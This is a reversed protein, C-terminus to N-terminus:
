AKARKLVLTVAPSRLISANGTSVASIWFATAGPVLEVRAHGAGNGQANTTFANPKTASTLPCAGPYQNVWISYTANPQARRLVVTVELYGRGTTNLIVFGPHAAGPAPQAGAACTYGPSTTTVDYLLAKRAGHHTVAHHNPDPHTVAHDNPGPHTGAAAMTPAAVSSALIGALALAGALRLRRHRTDDTM